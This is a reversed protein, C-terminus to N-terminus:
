GWSSAGASEAADKSRRVGELGERGRHRNTSPAVALSGPLGMLSLVAVTRVQEQNCGLAGLIGQEGPSGTM